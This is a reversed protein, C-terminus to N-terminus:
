GSVDEGHGNLAAVGHRRTKDNVVHGNPAIVENEFEVFVPTKAEGATRRYYYRDSQKGKRQLYRDLHSAQNGYHLTLMKYPKARKGDIKPQGIYGTVTGKLQYGADVCQEPAQETDTIIWFGQNRQGARWLVTGKGLQSRHDAQMYPTNPFLNAMKSKCYQALGGSAVAEPTDGTGAMVPEANATLEAAQAGVFAIGGIAALTKAGFKLSDYRDAAYEYGTRITGAVNTATDRAFDGVTSAIESAHSVLSGLRASLGPAPQELIPDTDALEMSAPYDSMAISEMGM